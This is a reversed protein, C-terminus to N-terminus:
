NEIQSLTEQGHQEALRRLAALRQQYQAETMAGSARVTGIATLEAQLAAAEDNSMQVSAANLPGAFSPYGDRSTVQQSPMEVATTPDEVNVELASVIANSGTSGTSQCGTVTMVVILLLSALLSLSPVPRNAQQNM